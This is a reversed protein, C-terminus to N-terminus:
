SPHTSRPRLVALRHTRLAPMRVLLRYLTGTRDGLRRALSPVLTLTRTEAAFTPLATRLLRERILITQPSLPNPIRPEWVIIVGGPSLVRGAERLARRADHAGALSSLVTFMTVVDFRGPGYPLERADGLSLSAEPLREQAVKIRDPLIDVGHLGADIDPSAALQELWWGSGCGVDLIHQARCLEAGALVLTAEILEKRIAVNGPNEGAWTRRRRRSSAYRRYTEAVRRQEDEPESRREARDNV